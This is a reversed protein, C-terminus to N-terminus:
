FVRSDNALLLVKGRMCETLSRSSKMLLKKITTKHRFIPKTSRNGKRALNITKPSGYNLIPDLHGTPTPFTQYLKASETKQYKKKVECTSKADTKKNSRWHVPLQTCLIYPSGTRVLEGAHEAQIEHIRHALWFRETNSQYGSPPDCM